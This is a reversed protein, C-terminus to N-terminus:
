TFTSVVADFSGDTFPLRAADARVLAEAVAGARAEAVRLQDASLDSGVTAWGAAVLRPLLVGGGCGVDLCRGPGQGLMRLVAEAAARSFSEVAPLTSWDEYWDALGDYRAASVM